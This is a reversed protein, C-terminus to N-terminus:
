GKAAVLCVPLCYLGNGRLGWTQKYGHQSVSGESSGMIFSKQNISKMGHLLVM